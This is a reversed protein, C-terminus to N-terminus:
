GQLIVRNSFAYGKSRKGNASLEFDFFFFNIGLDYPPNMGLKMAIQGLVTPAVAVYSSVCVSLPCLM